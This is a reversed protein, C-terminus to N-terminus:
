TLLVGWFRLSFNSKSLGIVWRVSRHSFILVELWWGESDYASRATMAPNVTLGSQSIAPSAMVGTSLSYWSICGLQEFYFWCTTPKSADTRHMIQVQSGQHPLNLDSFSWRNIDCISTLYTMLQDSQTTYSQWCERVGFVQLWEQSSAGANPGITGLEMWCEQWQQNNM